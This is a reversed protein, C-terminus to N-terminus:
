LLDKANYVDQYLIRKIREFDKEESLKGQVMLKLEIPVTEQTYAPQTYHTDWLNFGLNRYFEIRRKNLENTPPEVELVIAKKWDIEGLFIKGWGKNRESETIAFHEIYNFDPFTWYTFIGIPKSDNILINSFFLPHNDTVDRQGSISRREDEPFASTWVTEFFPYFKNTTKLKETVIM